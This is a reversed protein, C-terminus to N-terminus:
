FGKEKIELQKEAASGETGSWENLSTKHVEAYRRGM